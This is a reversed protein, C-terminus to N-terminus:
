ARPEVPLPEEPLAVTPCDKWLRELAYFHREDAHQIHVVVDVYDLLVWRAEREGERRLPKEDIAALQREIEDTIAKVQPENNASALLFIDTIALHDSVDLAVVETAMKERAANAAIVAIAKARDTATV